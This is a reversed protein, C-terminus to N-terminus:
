IGVGFLSLFFQIIRLIQAFEAIQVLILTLSDLFGM